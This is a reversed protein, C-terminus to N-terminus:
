SSTTQWGTRCVSLPVLWMSDRTNFHDPRGNALYILDVRLNGTNDHASDFNTVTRSAVGLCRM